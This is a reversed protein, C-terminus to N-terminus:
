SNGETASRNLSVTDGLVSHAYQLAPIDPDADRWAVVFREHAAWASALTATAEHARGALYHGYPDQTAITEACPLAGDARGNRIQARVSAATPEWEGLSTTLLLPQYAKQIRLSADADGAKLVNRRRLESVLGSYDPM